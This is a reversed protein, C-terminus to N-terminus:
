NIARAPRVGVGLEPQNPPAHFRAASRTMAAGNICSGGRHVRTPRSKPDCIPDRPSAKSAIDPDYGDLCWEAVNGLMDHLGFANPLRKGVPSPVAYGDRWPEHNTTDPSKQQVSLDAINAHEAFQSDAFPRPTETKARCAYEWQAESPLALALRRLTDHCQQWTVQELPHPGKAWEEGLEAKTWRSPQDATLRLWQPQTMEYKSLFFASIHVARVRGEDPQALPDENYDEPTQPTTAGMYFTREPVLVFVLGTNDDIVLSGDADRTPEDGSPTHWFEWLGSSADAGLPVLGMQIKLNLDPYSQRIQPLAQQWREFHRGGATFQEDMETATALRHAVSWGHQLSVADKNLLDGDETLTDLDAIIGDLQNLWWRPRNASALDRPFTQWTRRQCVEKNLKDVEAELESITERQQTMGGDSNASDAAHQLAQLARERGRQAPGTVADVQGRILDVAEQDRGLSGYALAVTLATFWKDDASATEFARLALALGLPEQGFTERAPHVLQRARGSLSMADRPQADWDVDPLPRTHEGDRQRLARRRALLQNSLREFTEYEPHSRRQEERESSSLPSAMARLEDRKTIMAPRQDTLARADAIWGELDARREPHPPWLLPVRAILDKYDQAAALRLMEDSRIKLQGARANAEIAYTTAVIAGAIAVLLTTAAGLVLSRHRRVFKTALYLSSPSHALIPENALFRRLDSALAAASEYRRHPTTELAKGLITDIDGRLSTDLLGARTPESQALQAILQPLPADEMIRPLRGLLMEFGIVGLAFVDVMPTVNLNDHSLQEPAMYALTGVLQGEATLASEMVTSDSRAHAIGFDLIRPNGHRDVLVNDPKLDRHVIGHENAYQVADAVRVLLELREKLTLDHQDCYSRIDTGNVLEMAFYPQPGRGIDYSGAEFISAIGPHQLRGLLEAERRFRRQRENSSHAAHLLKIAVSRRPSDQTAEYVIGMGGHGIKRVIRYKDIADPLWDQKTNASTPTVAEEISSRIAQLQQDSFADNNATQEAARLMSRAERLLDEDTQCQRKLWADRDPGDPQQMATQVLDCLQAYRDSEKSM